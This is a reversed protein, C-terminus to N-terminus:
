SADGLAKRFGAVCVSCPQCVNHAVSNMGILLDTAATRLAVNEDLLALARSPNLGFNEGARLRRELDQRLEDYNNM